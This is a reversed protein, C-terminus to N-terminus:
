YVGNTEGEELIPQNPVPANDLIEYSFLSGFEKMTELVIDPRDRVTVRLGKKALRAAVALKPSADIMPVKIGPKYGVDEFVYTHKQEEIM